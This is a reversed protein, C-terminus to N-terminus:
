DLYEFRSALKGINVIKENFLINQLGKIIQDSYFIMHRWSSYEPKSKNCFFFEVNDIKYNKNEKLYVSNRHLTNRVTNPLLFVDKMQESNSFNLKDITFRLASTFTPKKNDYGLHEAIEYFMNEIQFLIATIYSRRKLSDYANILNTITEDSISPNYRLIEKIIESDSYRLLRDYKDFDFFTAMNIILLGGLGQLRIDESTFGLSNLNKMIENIKRHQINLFNKYNEIDEFLNAAFVTGCVPCLCHTKENYQLFCANCNIM